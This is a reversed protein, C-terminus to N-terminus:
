NSKFASPTKGYRQKFIKRFYKPDLYGVEYAAETINFNKKEILYAAHEVKINRVYENINKGTIAKIKRYLSSRSMNMQESITDITKIDQQINQHVIEKFEKLFAKESDLVKLEDADVNANIADHTEYKQLLSTRSAILNAIRAKLVKINFPKVMYDDAGKSYGTEIIDFNSKASLLIIPIHSTARQEKLERCLDIGNKQPMMVDSIIIDPIYKIARSIGEQGNQAHILDYDTALISDLLALIDPNDDILLALKREKEAGIIVDNVTLEEYITAQINALNDEIIRKPYSQSGESQKPQSVPFSLTFTSGKQPSSVVYLNGNHLQAFRKSLALGIGSGGKRIKSNAQYYWEFIQNIETEDIGAGIDAVEITVDSANSCLKVYIKSNINSYKIANTILNNIIIHIKELDCVVLVPAEPKNFILNINKKKLLHKYSELWHSLNKNLDYSNLHLTSLGEESKRFELLKNIFQLLHEANKKILRLSKQQKKHIVNDILSELPALILTLPTKLEHSIGTYFRIREENLEHELQRQKQEFLLSNKLKLREAYYKLGGWIFIILTVIYFIYAPLTQWFPPLIIISLEKFRTSNAQNEAKIKLTYNGPPINSFNIRNSNKLHTYQDYYGELIYSYNLSAAFPFNLSTFDLSFNNQNYQLKIQDKYIISQDLIAKPNDLSVNVDENHVKLDKIIITNAENQNKLDEPSFINVGKNGGFYLYGKKSILAAGVNYESKQINYLSNLSKVQKNGLNFESLGKYTGLFLKQSNYNIISNITNNSLGQSETYTTGSSDGDKFLILGGYKQGAAITDDSLVKISFIVNNTLGDLNGHFYSFVENNDPNFKVIGNGYTALWLVGNSDFDIARIDMRETIQDLAKVYVFKKKSSDYKFLGGRNTGVWIQNKSDQAICRVDNGDAKSGNLYYSWTNNRPDYQHLGKQYTGIWLKEQNDEFLCNLHKTRLKDSDIFDADSYIGTDPNFSDLGGGDTAILILGSKLEELGTIRNHILRAGGKLNNKLLKVPEGKPDVFDIGANTGIWLYGNRDKKLANISANTISTGDDQPQYTDISFSPSKSLFAKIDFRNIGGSYTGVWLKGYDDKEIALIQDDTLTQKTSGEKLTYLKGNYSRAILGQSSGIWLIQNEDLYLTNIEEVKEDDIVLPIPTIKNAQFDFYNLGEDFTGIWAGKSGQKVMCSIKNSSLDSTESNLFTTEETDNFTFIGQGYVGIAYSNESIDIYSNISLKLHPNFDNLSYFRENKPNYTVLGGDTALKLEGSNEFSINQIYNNRINSNEKRFIKFENGDYRNLGDSTGIWIFGLEDQEITKVTNNSLGNQTDLHYFTLQEKLTENRLDYKIQTYSLNYFCILFFWQIVLTSNRSLVCM